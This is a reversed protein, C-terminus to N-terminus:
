PRSGPRRGVAGGALLWGRYAAFARDWRLQADPDRGLRARWAADTERQEARTLGYRLLTEEARDPAVALEVCLSAHQELTLRRSADSGAAVVSAAGSPPGVFPLAEGPVFVDIDETAMSAAARAGPLPSSLAPPAVSPGGHAVPAAFPLVPGSARRLPPVATDDLPDIGDGDHRAPAVDRAAPRPGPVVVPPEGPPAALQAAVRERLAPDAGFREAWRRQLRAVDAPVLGNRGLFAGPDPDAIWARLFDLWRDLDDDLPPVPRRFRERAAAILADLEDALRGGQELDDLLRETLRREARTWGPADLGLPALLEPLPTGEARGAMVWAM